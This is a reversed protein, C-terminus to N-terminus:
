CPMEWAVGMLLADGVALKMRRVDQDLLRRGALGLADDLEGPEAAAAGAARARKRVGRGLEDGAALRGRGGVDILEAGGEVDQGGAAQRVLGRTGVLDAIEDQLALAMGRADVM